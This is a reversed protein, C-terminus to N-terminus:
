KRSQGEVKTTLFPGESTEEKWKQMSVGGGHTKKTTTKKTKNQRRSATSGLEEQCCRCFSFHAGPQTM